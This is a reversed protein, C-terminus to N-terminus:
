ACCKKLDVWWFIFFFGKIYLSARCICAIYVVLGIKGFFNPESLKLWLIYGPGTPWQNIYTIGEIWRLLYVGTRRKLVGPIKKFLQWKFAESSIGRALEKSKASPQPLQRIKSLIGKTYLLLLKRALGGIKQISNEAVVVVGLVILQQLVTWVTTEWVTYRCLEDHM